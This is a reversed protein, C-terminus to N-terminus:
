DRVRTLAEHYLSREYSTGFWGSTRIVESFLIGRIDEMRTVKHFKDWDEPYISDMFHKFERVTGAVVAIKNVM